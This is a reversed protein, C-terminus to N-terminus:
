AINSLIGGGGGRGLADVDGDELGDWGQVPFDESVTKHPVLLWSEASMVSRFAKGGGRM